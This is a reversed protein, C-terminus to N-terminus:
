QANDLTPVTSIRRMKLRGAVTINDKIMGSIVESFRGSLEGVNPQNADFSITMNRTVKPGKTLEQHYAHRMPNSRHFPDIVLSTTLNQGMTGSMARSLDYTEQLTTPRNALTVLDPGAWASASRPMDYAVSEIRVGVKKGNREKIGEFFPIKAQDVVLVPLSPVSSDASKTQMMTVQSLLRTQGTANVHLILRLPATTSAKQVPAGNVVISSVQDMVVDGVWLGTMPGTPLVGLAAASQELSSLVARVPFYISAGKDATRIRYVSIHSAADTFTRRAGITLNLSNRGAIPVFSSLFGNGRTYAVGTPAPAVRFLTLAPDVSVTTASPTISASSLNTFTIANLDLKESGVSVADEAGAYDFIGTISNAFDVAVPGMYNSPGNSFIWYAKQNEMRASPDVVAWSGNTALTYIRDVTHKGGSAAFFEQFSTNGDIGFGILNYRDANWTPRSFRVRGTIVFSTPANSFILYPRNGFTMSLNNTDATDTKKWQLWEDQNFFNPESLDSPASGFFEATSAIAKPSAVITVAAVASTPTVTNGVPSQFLDNPHMAAGAKPGSAYTPEVELWISNWGQLLNIQQSATQASVQFSLVLFAAVFFRGIFFSFSSAHKM